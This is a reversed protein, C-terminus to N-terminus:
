KRMWKADSIPQRGDKDSNWVDMVTRRDEPDRGHALADRVQARDRAHGERKWDRDSTATTLGMWPSHHRSRSVVGGERGQGM